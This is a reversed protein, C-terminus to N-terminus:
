RGEREGRSYRDDFREIDDEGLYDGVAVETVRLAVDENNALRHLMGAPIFSSEGQELVTSSGDIEVTARGEVVVWHESRHQHKQLSLSAGPFVEIEKVQYGLGRNLVTWNGWPRRSIRSHIAEHASRHQLEDVVLRVDQIRDRAAVLTADETDVVIVDELGLTAVLRQPSYNLTNRSDIDLGQGIVRTGQNNAQTLIELATLSGVDTWDFEAPVVQVKKSLELVARDFSEGSLARFDALVSESGPDDVLAKVVKLLTENEAATSLEPHAAHVVAIEALIADARAFLMGSNWFYSGEAIYREAVDQSPKEVFRKV